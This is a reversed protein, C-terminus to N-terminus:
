ININHLFFFLSNRKKENVKIVLIIVSLTLSYLSNFNIWLIYKYIFKQKLCTNKLNKEERKQLLFLKKQFLICTRLVSQLRRFNIGNIYICVYLKRKEYCSFFFTSYIKRQYSCCFFFNRFFLRFIFICSEMKNGFPMVLFCFKRREFKPVCVCVCVLVYFNSSSFTSKLINM